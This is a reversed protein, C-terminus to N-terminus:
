GGSLIGSAAVALVVFELFAILAYTRRRARLYFFSAAGVILMSGAPFLVLSAFVLIPGQDLNHIWQWGVARETEAAYDRASLHWVEPVQAVDVVAPLVRGVYLAFTLFIAALAIRVLWMLMRAYALQVPDVTLRRDPATDTM